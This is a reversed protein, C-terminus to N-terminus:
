KEIWVIFRLVGEPMVRPHESKDVTFKGYKSLTDILMDYSQEPITFHFYSGNTKKWGIEVEGAKKGGLAIIQEVLQPTFDYVTDNKFSIRHIYGTRPAPKRLQEEKAATQQVDTNAVHAMQAAAENSPQPAPAPAQAAPAMVEEDIPLDATEYPIEPQSDDAGQETVPIGSPVQPVIQDKLNAYDTLTTPKFTQAVIPENVDEESYFKPFEIIFFTIAVAVVLAEFGWKFAQPINKWALHHAVVQRTTPRDLLRKVLDESVEVSQLEECYGIGVDLKTLEAQALPSHKLGEEIAETRIADLKGIKYDYLLEITMFESMNRKRM